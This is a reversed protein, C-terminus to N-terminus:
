NKNNTIIYSHTLPPLLQPANITCQDAGRTQARSAVSGHLKCIAAACGLPEAKHAAGATQLKCVRAKSPIIGAVLADGQAKGRVRTSLAGQEARLEFRAVMAWNTAPLAPMSSM